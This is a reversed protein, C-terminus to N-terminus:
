FMILFGARCADNLQPTAKSFCRECRKATAHPKQFREVFGVVCWLFFAVGVIVGM